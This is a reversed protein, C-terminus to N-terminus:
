DHEIVGNRVLFSEIEEITYEKASFTESIEGDQYAVFIPNNDNLDYKEKLKKTKEIYVFYQQINHDLILNKIEKELDQNAKKSDNIYLVVNLNEQLYNELDDVKIENVIEKVVSKYLDPKNTNYMNMLVFCVIVIVVAVVGVIIYNKKPIDRM